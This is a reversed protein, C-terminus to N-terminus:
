VRTGMVLGEELGEEWLVVCQGTGLSTSPEQSQPEGVTGLASSRGPSTHCAMARLNQGAVSHPTGERGEECVARLSQEAKVIDVAPVHMGSPSM